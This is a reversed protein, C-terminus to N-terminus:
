TNISSKKLYHTIKSLITDKSAGFKFNKMLELNETKQAMAIMDFFNNGPGVNHLKQGQIKELVKITKPRKSKLGQDM